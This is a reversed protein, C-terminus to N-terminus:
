EAFKWAGLVRCREGSIRGNDIIRGDVIALAHGRVLVYFVGRAHTRCFRALTGAAASDPVRGAIRNLLTVLARSPTGKGRPRDCESEILTRAATYELDSVIALARVACDNTDDDPRGGTWRAGLSEHAGYRAAAASAVHRVLGALTESTGYRKAVEFAKATAQM